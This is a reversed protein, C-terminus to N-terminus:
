EELQSEPNELNHIKRLIKQYVSHKLDAIKINEPNRKQHAAEQEQIVQSVEGILWEYFKEYDQNTM